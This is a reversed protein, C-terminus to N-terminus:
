SVDIKQKCTMKRQSEGTQRYFIDILPGHNITLFVLTNMEGYEIIEFWDLKGRKTFTFLM